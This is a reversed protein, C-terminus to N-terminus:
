PNADIADVVLWTWRVLAVYRRKEETQKQKSISISFSVRARCRKTTPQPNFYDAYISRRHPNHLRGSRFRIDMLLVRADLVPEM